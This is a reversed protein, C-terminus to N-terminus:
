DELANRARLRELLQRMSTFERLEPDNISVDLVEDMTSIITLHGISDWEGVTGPTDDETLSGPSRGLAECVRDLFEQTKM